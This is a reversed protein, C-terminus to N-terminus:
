CNEGVRLVSHDVFRNSHERLAILRAL